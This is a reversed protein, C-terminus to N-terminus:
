QRLKKEDQFTKIHENLAQFLKTFLEKEGANRDPHLKLWLSRQISRLNKSKM